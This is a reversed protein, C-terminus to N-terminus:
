HYRVNDLLRVTISSAATLKIYCHYAYQLTKLTLSLLVKITPPFSKNRCPFLRRVGLNGLLLLGSQYMLKHVQISHKTCKVISFDANKKKKKKNNNNNRGNKYRLQLHIIADNTDSISIQRVSLTAESIVCQVIM